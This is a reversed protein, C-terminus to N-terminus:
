RTIWLRRFTPSARAMTAAAKAAHGGFEWVVATLQDLPLAAHEGAQLGRSDAQAGVGDLRTKLPMATVGLVSM